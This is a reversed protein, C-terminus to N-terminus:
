KLFYIFFEGAYLYAPSRCRPTIPKDRSLVPKEREFFAYSITLTKTPIELYVEDAGIYEPLHLVIPMRAKALLEKALTGKKKTDVWAPVAETDDVMLIRSFVHLVPSGCGIGILVTATAKNM